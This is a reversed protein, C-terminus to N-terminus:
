LNLVSQQNVKNTKINARSTNSFFSLFLGTLQDNESQDNESQDNESSKKRGGM